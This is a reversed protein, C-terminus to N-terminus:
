RLRERSLAFVIQIIKERMGAELDVFCVGHGYVQGKNKKKEEVWVIKGKVFLTEEVQKSRIFVCVALLTEEPLRNEVVM